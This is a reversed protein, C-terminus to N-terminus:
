NEKQAIFRHGIAALIAPDIPIRGPQTKFLKKVYQLPIVTKGIQSAERLWWVKHIPFKTQNWYSHICVYVHIGYKVPQCVSLKFFFYFFVIKFDVM